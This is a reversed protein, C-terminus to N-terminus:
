NQTVGPEVRSVETRPKDKRTVVLQVCLERLSNALWIIQIDGVEVSIM